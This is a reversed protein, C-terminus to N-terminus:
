RNRICRKLESADGYRWDPCGKRTSFSELWCDHAWPPSGEFTLGFIRCTINVLDEYTSSVGHYEGDTGYTLPLEFGHYTSLYETPSIDATNMSANSHFASTPLFRLAGTPPLDYPIGFFQHIDPFPPNIFGNLIGSSTTVQLRYMSSQRPTASRTVAPALLIVFTFRLIAESKGHPHLEVFGSSSSLHKYEILHTLDHYPTLISRSATGMSKDAAGERSMMTPRRRTVNLQDHM